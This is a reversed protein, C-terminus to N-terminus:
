LSSLITMMKNDDKAALDDLLHIYTRQTTETNGHGLRKAVSQISVGASILMSAHTHRLSHISIRPVGAEKCYSTLLQNLTSNYIRAYKQKLDKHTRQPHAIDHRLAKRENTLAKVFIPEEPECGQMYKMIEQMARFDLKIVRNSYKNKTPQFHMNVNKYNWSKNVYITMHQQDVDKPTIALLEAFRLGTRLDFDFMTAAVRDSDSLVHELKKIQDPELWKARTIRHEVQSTARIKYTPDKKIWGEYVADKLPAEIHHLFDRVTPLEHTEGYRNILRQIDTRTIKSLSLDPALKKIQRAVLYYKNLTVGRVQGVKYTEVWQKYYKYFKISRGNSPM